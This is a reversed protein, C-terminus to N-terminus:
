RKDLGSYIVNGRKHKQYVCVKSDKDTLQIIKEEEQEKDEQEISENSETGTTEIPPSIIDKVIARLEKCTLASDLEKINDIFQNETLPILELM